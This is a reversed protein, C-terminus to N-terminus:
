GDGRCSSPCRILSVRHLLFPWPSPNPSVLSAYPLSVCTPGEVLRVLDQSTANESHGILPSTLLISGGPGVHSCPTKADLGESPRAIELQKETRLSRSEEGPHDQLRPYDSDSESVPLRSPRLTALWPGILPEHGIAKKPQGLPCLTAGSVRM